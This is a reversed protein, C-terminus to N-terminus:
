QPRAEPKAKMQEIRAAHSEEGQMMGQHTQVMSADHKEAGQALTEARGAVEIAHKEQTFAVGSRMQQLKLMEQEIKLSNIQRQTQLDDAAAALKIQNMQADFQADVMASPDVAAGEPAAMAERMIKATEAKTKENQLKKGELETQAAAMQMQEAPGPPEPPPVEDGQEKKQNALLKQIQPPAIAELREAFQDALPWDQGKAVLDMVAPAVDPAGQLFAIMGDKAEARKTSYSPGTELVVDYTGATMDNEVREVQKPEGTQEDYEVLGVTRNIWKLDIKGDDGMIRIMRESDYVHPILDILM